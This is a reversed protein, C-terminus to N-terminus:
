PFSTTRRIKDKLQRAQQLLLIILTFIYVGLQSEQRDTYAAARREFPFPMGRHVKVSRALPCIFFGDPIRRM